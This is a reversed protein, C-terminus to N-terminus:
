PRDAFVWREGRHELRYRARLMRPGGGPVEV